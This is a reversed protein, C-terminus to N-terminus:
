RNHNNALLSYVYPIYGMGPLRRSCATHWKPSEISGDPRKKYRLVLDGGHRFTAFGNQPQQSSKLLAESLCPIYVEKLRVRNGDVCQRVIIRADSSIDIHRIVYGHTALVESLWYDLYGNGWKVPQVADGPYLFRENRDLISIADNANQETIGVIPDIQISHDSHEGSFEAVDDLIVYNFDNVENQRIWESIEKGKGLSEIQRINDPSSLDITLFEDILYDPTIDYVAGPLGRDKWMQKMRKLGEAKWSSEIIIWCDPISDLIMKLNGVAEPDFLQGYKDWGYKGELRLQTQYKETNLVGDFDLFVYKNM